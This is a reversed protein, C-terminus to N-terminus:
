CQLVSFWFPAIMRLGICDCPRDFVRLRKGIYGWLRALRIQNTGEQGRIHGFRRM